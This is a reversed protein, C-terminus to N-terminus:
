QSIKFIAQTSAKRAEDNFELTHFLTKFVKSKTLSDLIANVEQAKSIEETIPETTEM